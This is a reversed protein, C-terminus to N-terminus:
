SINYSSVTSRKGQYPTYRKKIIDEIVKGRTVTNIAVIKRTGKLIWKHADVFEFEGEKVELVAIDAVGGEKLTGLEEPGGIIKAPNSTARLIVDELPLGLNLFKSLTTPLDYTPGNVCGGHLDTSITFPKVGQKLLDKAVRFSFSGMGHGIDLLVGRDIAERAEPKLEGNGDIIRVDGKRLLPLVEEIIPPAFSIHLMIPVGAHYAIQLALEIMREGYRENNYGAFTKVGIITERNEKILLVTEYTLTPQEIPHDKSTVGRANIFNFVRTQSKDVIFRKFGPWSDYNVSAVDVMTTVGSYPTISDPDLRGRSIGWYVHTHLDILGPTVIKGSADIVKKGESSPLDEKMEIIKEGSIAIDLQKDIRSAPDFVRGGKIILDFKM